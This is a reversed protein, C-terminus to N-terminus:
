FKNPYAPRSLYNMFIQLLVTAYPDRYRRVRSIGFDLVSEEIQEPGKIIDQDGMEYPRCFAKGLEKKNEKTMDSSLLKEYKTKYSRVKNLIHGYRKLMNKQIIGKNPHNEETQRIDIWVKGDANFSVLDLLSLSVRIYKSLEAVIRPQGSVQQLESVFPRNNDKDVNYERIPVLYFEDFNTKTRMGEPRIVLNCPQCLLIFEKNKPGISFIDGNCIQSYTRNIYEKDVYIEENLLESVIDANAEKSEIDNRITRLDNSLSQFEAFGKGTLQEKLGLNMYDQVIRMLTEFEWCGEKESSDMVVKHFTSPDMNDLREGMSASAEAVLNRAYKKLESIQKLWLVNRLGDLIVRDDDSEIRRKSLVYINNKEAIKSWRDLEDEIPFTGSFVACNVFDRDAIQELVQEGTRGYEELKYDMLIMLQHNKDLSRLIEERLGEFQEPSLYSQHMGGPIFSEFRKRLSNADEATLGLKNCYLQREKEPTSHWWDEFEDEWIEKHSIIDVEELHERVFDKCQEKEVLTNGFRDDVYVFQSIHGSAFLAKASEQLQGM